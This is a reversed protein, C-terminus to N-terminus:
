ASVEDALENEDDEARPLARGLAVGLEGLAALFAPLGGANEISAEIRRRAASVNDGLADFDLGIDGVLEVRREFTSVYILLGTRGRTRSIGREVFATCAARRVNEAMLRRSTLARRLPPVNASIFGGLAFVLLIEVPLLDDDFPAPHFLFVCLAVFSLVFGVLWDTHRYPGSVARVAVVVEASTKAELERIVRSAEDKAKSDLLDRTSM